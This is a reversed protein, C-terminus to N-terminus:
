VFRYSQLALATVVCISLVLLFKAPRRHRFEWGGLAFMALLFAIFVKV